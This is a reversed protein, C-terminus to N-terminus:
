IYKVLHSNYTRRFYGHAHQESFTWNGPRRLNNNFCQLLDLFLLLIIIDNTLLDTPRTSKASRGVSDVLWGVLVAFSEAASSLKAAMRTHGDIRRYTSASYTLQVSLLTYIFRLKGVFWSINQTDRHYYRSCYPLIFFM